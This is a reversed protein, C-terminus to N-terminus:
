IDKKLNVARQYKWVREVTHRDKPLCSLMTQFLDKTQLFTCKTKNEKGVISRVGDREKNSRVNQRKIHEVKFRNGGCHM